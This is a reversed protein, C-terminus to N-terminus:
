RAKLKVIEQELDSLRAHTEVRNKCCTVAVNAMINHIPALMRTIMLYIVYVFAIQTASRIIDFWFELSM